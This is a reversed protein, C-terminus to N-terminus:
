RREDAVFAFPTMLVSFMGQVTLAFFAAVGPCGNCMCVHQQARGRFLRDYDMLWRVVFADAAATRFAALRVACGGLSHLM